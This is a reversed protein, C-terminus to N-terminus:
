KDPKIRYPRCHWRLGYISEILDNAVVRLHNRVSYRGSKVPADDSISRQVRPQISNDISQTFETKRFTVSDSEQRAVTVDIDLTDQCCGSAAKHQGRKVEQKLRILQGVNQPV